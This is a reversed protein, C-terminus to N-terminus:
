KRGRERGGREREEWMDRKEGVIDGNERRRGRERARGNM